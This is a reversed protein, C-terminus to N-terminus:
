ARSHQRPTRNGDLVKLCRRGPRMPSDSEPHQYSKAPDGNGGNKKKQAKTAKTAM